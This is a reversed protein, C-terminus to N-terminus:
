EVHVRDAFPALAGGKKVLGLRKGRRHLMNRSVAHRVWILGEENVVFVHSCHHFPEVARLDVNSNKRAPGVARGIATLNYKDALVCSHDNLKRERLEVEIRYRLGDPVLDQALLNWKTSYEYIMSHITHDLHQPKQLNSHSAPKGLKQMSGAIDHGVAAKCSYKAVSLGCEVYYFDRRRDIGFRATNSGPGLAGALTTPFAQVALPRDEGLGFSSSEAALVLAM